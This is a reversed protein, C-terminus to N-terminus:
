HEKLVIGGQMASTSSIGVLDVDCCEDNEGGDFLSFKVEIAGNHWILKKDLPSAM